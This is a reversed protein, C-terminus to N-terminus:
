PLYEYGSISCTTTPPTLQMARNNIEEKPPIKTLERLKTEISGKECFIEESFIDRAEITHYIKRAKYL